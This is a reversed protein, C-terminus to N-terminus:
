PAIPAPIVYLEDSLKTSTGTGFIDIIAPFTTTANTRIGFGEPLVREVVATFDTNGGPLVDVGSSGIWELAEQNADPMGDFDDLYFDIRCAECLGANGAITTTMAVPDVTISTIVPAPFNRLPMPIAPGFEIALGPSKIVVNEQMTLQDFLPSGDTILIAGGPRGEDAPFFVKSDAITNAVIRNATGGAKIGGGCVGAVTVSGDEAMVIGNEDVGIRNGMISHNTGFVEIAMPPTETASQTQHLGAIINNTIMNGNGSVQIGWGGYWNLPEFTFSRLCKIRINVDPVTGDARTGVWNADITNAEGTVNIARGTFGAAVNHQIVSMSAQVLIAGTGSLGRQNDEDAIALAQGDDTLGFWNYEVVTEAADAKLQLIGGGKISLNRLTNHSSKIEIPWDNTELIIAPDGHVEEEPMPGEQMPMPEEPIPREGGDITVQGLTELTNERSLILRAGLSITWTGLEANFHEEETEPIDFRILIPRDGTPRASAEVMARRLSCPENEDFTYIGGVYGCTRTVSDPNSDAATTVVLTTTFMEEPEQAMSDMVAGGLWVTLCFGIWVWSKICGVAPQLVPQIHPVARINWRHMMRRVM